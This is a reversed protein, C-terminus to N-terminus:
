PLPAIATSQFRIQGMQLTAASNVQVTFEHGILADAVILSQEGSPVGSIEFVGNEDTKTSLNKGLIFIEGQFPQGNEDVVSGTIAGTGKIMDLTNTNRLLTTVAIVGVILTLVALIIRFKRQRGPDAQKKTKEGLFEEFSTSEDIQM